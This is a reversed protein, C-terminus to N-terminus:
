SSPAEHPRNNKAKLLSVMIADIRDIIQKYYGGFSKSNSFLEQRIARIRPDNTKLPTLPGNSMAFRELILLQKAREFFPLCFTKLESIEHSLRADSANTSPVLEALQKLMSYLTCYEIGRVGRRWQIIWPNRWYWLFNKEGFDILGSAASELQKINRLLKEDPQHLFFSTQHSASGADPLRRSRVVVSKGALHEFINLLVKHGPYDGPTEFHLYSLFVTGKGHKGEIMAPEFKIRNPNLNTDYSREWADWEMDEAVMLDAVYSGEDPEDYSALVTVKTPDLISFQGPWWAHFATLNSIHEWIPHDPQEQRLRIKGSFSPVREGTPKRRVPLLSIGDKHKLALGAGGCFGLYNGGAEVFSRINNVGDEGLAKIKNSAWGGPVFLIDYDNLVGARIDASTVIDFNISLQSFTKHAIIGWLFSEDWFLAIKGPTPDSQKGM